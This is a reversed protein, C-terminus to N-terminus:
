KDDKKPVLKMGCKPCKGPQSSTVDPHMPCTYVVSKPSGSDHATAPAARAPAPVAAGPKGKLVLKMGCKPCQGPQPSKVEPHMPCTYIASSDSSGEQLPAAPPGSQASDMSAAAHNHNAHQDPGEVRITDGQANGASAAGPSETSALSVSAPPSEPGNPNAPDLAAARPPVGSGCAALQVLILSPIVMALNQKTRMM